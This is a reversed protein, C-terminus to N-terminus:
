GIGVRVRHEEIRRVVMLALELARRGDEGSVLPQKKQRVCELFSEIQARLPESKEVEVRRSYITPKSGPESPQLSVVDLHSESYDLSIYNHPQFIRLKRIKERSIRSATLNAVCGDAFELRASAIDVSSTLIPVGVAKVETVPARVLWLVIDLDHIMLDLVVDIDLSRETFVGLRHVEFFKPETVMQALLRVSPNFRELHGVQLLAGTAAAQRIMENAEELTRAIPKEVLVSVGRRLFECAITCHSETPVAVTVAEVQDLLPRYDTYSPVGYRRAVAEGRDRDVDAVGVLRVQPLSAYIRAHEKGIQGVGVVAVRMM